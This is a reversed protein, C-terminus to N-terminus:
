SLRQRGPVVPHHHRVFSFVTGTGDAVVYDPATAGCGPCMPGPPHRLRGCASCRQIRLEGRATGAWFFETDRTVVPTLAGPPAAPKPRYKLIRFMMTAVPESGSFWTSETTVFWGEGLSTQKPGVVDSLRSRVTLLEEVKLPRLYEQECNTAVVSTFGEEDLVASMAHLPDDGSGPAPHLGRMTWVQVMAPPVVGEAYSGGIAEVWNNIMPQNVPDRAVRPACLSQARLREAELHIRSM